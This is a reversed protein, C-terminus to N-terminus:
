WNAARAKQEAIREQVRLAAAAPTEANHRRLIDRVLTHAGTWPKGDRRKHGTSDLLRCLARLSFAPNQHLEILAFIVRYELPDQVLM